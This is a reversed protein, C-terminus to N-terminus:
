QCLLPLMTLNTDIWCINELAECDRCCVQKYINPVLRLIAFGMAPCVSNCLSIEDLFRLSTVVRSSLAYFLSFFSSLQKLLRGM